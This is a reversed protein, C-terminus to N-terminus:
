VMPIMSHNDNSELFPRTNIETYDLLASMLKM